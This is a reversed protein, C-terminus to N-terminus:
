WAQRDLVALWKIWVHQSAQMEYLTFLTSAIFMAKQCPNLSGPNFFLRGGLEGLIRATHGTPPAAAELVTVRPTLTLPARGAAEPVVRARTGVLGQGQARPVKWRPYWAQPGLRPATLLSGMAVAGQRLGSAKNGQAGLGAQVCGRGQVNQVRSGVVGPKMRGTAGPRQVGPVAKGAVQGRLGCGRPGGVALTGLSFRDEQPNSGPVRNQLPASLLRGVQMGVLLRTSHPATWPGRPGHAGGGPGMGRSAGKGLVSSKTTPRTHSFRTHLPQPQPQAFTFALPLASPLAIAKVVEEAFMRMFANLTHAAGAPAQTVSLRSGVQM